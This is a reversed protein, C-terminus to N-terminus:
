GITTFIKFMPVMIALVITGVIGALLIIMVPEILAKIQDTAAEVESEYFEAAKELMADLSGSKEGVSIMQTVLPPFAWHNEMPASLSEGQQLSRRSEKLVNAIVHNDAVREVITLAQLVPVSSQFLAGLTQTVRALESKQILSGFVPIRLIITDMWLRMQPHRRGFKWGFVFLAAVIPVVWWFVLALDGAAMVLKTITPLEGGFSAFMSAFTPVVFVLLFIIIAIAVVGVFMPYTLTALVKQKLRHQKEYYTALRDLIDDLRGGAEGVKVMNTFLPPFLDGQKASAASLSKGSRVDEEIMALAAKLPKSTTQKTLVHITEIVPVGAKLLTSFQRLFMVFDKSKVKPKLIQVDQYLGQQLEEIATVSIRKEKLLQVAATEDNAQTKGKVPKGHSDRGTYSYTAM